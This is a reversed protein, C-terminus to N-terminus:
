TKNGNPLLITLYVYNAAFYERVPIYFLLAVFFVALFNSEEGDKENTQLMDIM